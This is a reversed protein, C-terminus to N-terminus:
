TRPTTISPTARISTVAAHVVVEEGVAVVVGTVVMSEPLSEVTVVVVDGVVVVLLRAMGSVWS